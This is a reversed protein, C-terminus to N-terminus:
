FYRGVGFSFHANDFGKGFAGETDFVRDLWLIGRTEIFTNKSIAYSLSYSIGWFYILGYTLLIKNNHFIHGLKLNTIPIWWLALPPKFPKNFEGKFNRPYVISWSLDFGCYMSDNNFSKGYEIGYKIMPEIFAGLDKGKEQELNLTIGLGARYFFGNYLINHNNALSQKQFNVIILIVIFKYKV